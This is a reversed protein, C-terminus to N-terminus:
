RAHEAGVTGHKLEQAHLDAVIAVRAPMGRINVRNLKYNFTMINHLPSPEASWHM